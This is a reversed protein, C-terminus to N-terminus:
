VRLASACKTFVEYGVNGTEVRLQNEKALLPKRNSESRLVALGDPYVSCNLQIAPNDDSIKGSLAAM